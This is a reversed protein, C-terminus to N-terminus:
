QPDAPTVRIIPGTPIPTLAADSIMVAFGDPHPQGKREAEAMEACRSAALQAAKGAPPEGSIRVAPYMDVRYVAAPGKALHITALKALPIVSGNATTVSATKLTEFTARPDPDKWETVGRLVPTAHGHAQMAAQISSDGIATTVEAVSVGHERLKALDLDIKVQDEDPGPFIEPKVIAGEASLRKLVAESWGQLAKRDQGGRDVMAISVRDKDATEAKRIKVSAGVKRVAEPLVPYALAVRNQVLVIAIKPDIKPEFRLRAAYSGDGRSESEIRMMGQMGNLQQEIPAAITDVVVQANAGPYSVKVEVIPGARNAGPCGVPTFAFVVLFAATWRM